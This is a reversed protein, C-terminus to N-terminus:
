ANSIAIQSSLLSKWTNNAVLGYEAFVKEAYEGFLSYRDSDKVNDLYYNGPPKAEVLWREAKTGLYYGARFHFGTESLDKKAKNFLSAFVSNEGTSRNSRTPLPSLVYGSIAAATGIQSLYKLFDTQHSPWSEGTLIEFPIKYGVAQFAMLIHADTSRILQEMTDDTPTTSSSPPANIFLNRMMLAVDQPTCFPTTPVAM